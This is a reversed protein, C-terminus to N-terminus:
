RNDWFDKLRSKFEPVQVAYALGGGVLAFFLVAIFKLFGLEMALAVVLASVLATLWVARPNKPEPLNM